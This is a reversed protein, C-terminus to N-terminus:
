SNALQREANEAPAPRLADSLWDLHLQHDQLNRRLIEGMEPLGAPPALRELYACM